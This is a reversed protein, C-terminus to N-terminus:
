PTPMSMVRRSRCIAERLFSCGQSIPL